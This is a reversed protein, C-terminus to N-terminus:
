LYLWPLNLLYWATSFHANTKLTHSFLVTLNLNLKLEISGRQRNLNPFVTPTIVFVNLIGIEGCTLAACYIFFMCHSILNDLLTIISHSESLLHQMKM